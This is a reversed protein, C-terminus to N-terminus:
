TQNSPRATETRAFRAVVRSGSKRDSIVRPSVSREGRLETPHASDELGVTASM